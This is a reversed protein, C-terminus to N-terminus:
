SPERENGFAYGKSKKRQTRRKETVGRETVGRWIEENILEVKYLRM